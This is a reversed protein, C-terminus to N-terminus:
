VNALMAEAIAQGKAKDGAPLTVAVFYDDGKILFQGSETGIGQWIAANGVGDVEEVNGTQSSKIGAVSADYNDAIEVSLILGSDFRCIKRQSPDTAQVTGTGPASGVLQELQAGDVVTCPDPVEGAGPSEGGNGPVTTADSAPAATTTPTADGADKKDSGCGALAVAALAVLIVIKKSM